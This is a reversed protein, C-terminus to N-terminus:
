RLSGPPSVLGYRRSVAYPLLRAQYRGDSGAPPPRDFRSHLWVFQQLRMDPVHSTIAAPIHRSGNRSSSPRLVASPGVDRSSENFCGNSSITLPSPPALNLAIWNTHLKGHPPGAMVPCERHVLSSLKCCDLVAKRWRKCRSDSWNFLEDVDRAHRATPSSVPAPAHQAPSASLAKPSELMLASRRPLRAETQQAAGGGRM